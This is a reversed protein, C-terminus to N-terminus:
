AEWVEDAHESKAILAAIIESSPEHEFDESMERCWYPSFWRVRWVKETTDSFADFEISTAVETEPESMMPRYAIYTKKM